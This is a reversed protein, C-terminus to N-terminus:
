TRPRDLVGGIIFTRKTFLSLSILGSLFQSATLRAPSPFPAISPSGDGRFKGIFVPHFGRKSKEAGKEAGPSAVAAVM